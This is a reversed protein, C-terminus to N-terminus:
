RSTRPRRTAFLGSDFGEAGAVGSTILYEGPSLPHSPTISLVDYSLTNMSLPVVRRQPYGPKFQSRWIGEAGAAGPQEAQLRTEVHVRKTGEARGHKQYFRLNAKM